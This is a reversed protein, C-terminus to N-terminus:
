MKGEGELFTATSTIHMEKTNAVGGDPSPLGFTFNVAQLLPKIPCAAHFFMIEM